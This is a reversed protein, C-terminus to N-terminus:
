DNFHLNNPMLPSPNLFLVCVWARVVPAYSSYWTGSYVMEFIEALLRM